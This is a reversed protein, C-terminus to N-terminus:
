PWNGKNYSIFFKPIKNTDAKEKLFILIIFLFAINVKSFVGKEPTLDFM